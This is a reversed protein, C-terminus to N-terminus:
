WNAEVYKLAEEHDLARSTNGLRVYFAKGRDSKMFVPEPSRDVDVVCVSKEGVDEFRVRFYPATTMGMGTAILSTLLQEFRDRSRGTLSLDRDLGYISGDDEVGILLTGGQSNMFANVTKLSSQRLGKNQENRIADWQLTSKFELVFSEGQGILDTIPRRHTEEPQSILSDMFENLKRAMIERRAALFDPFREVEWLEPQMPVFQAPLAGPHREEIEALYRAPERDSIQQNTAATLFARNAIENVAQRHTYNDADWGNRYLHAQPFIHHSQIGYRAGRTQALPLGNFWDVAGQAKALIFIAKYLPHQVGRGDFDSGKVEIRGRQEVINSRLADWPETERVVLQVDAELRQDTQATYRAWMLAAYLWNTAHRISKEDTFRGENISLHTVLPILANSTNLDNTSHIFAKQPLIILLYDLIKVLRDWGAELEGRPRSHIADFLARNTVAATLARTMFTLSFDFGHGACEEAKSKLARRAMPWKGTVHTLALEADTLKTGQSNIRDFINISEDLDAHSPVIQEPLDIERINRIRNLNNNLREALVMVSDGGDGTKDQAIEFINVPVGTDFCATVRQWFPDGDMRSSQYYQFELDNLNVHLNRPDNEIEDETYFRPIEGSLLMHLTTLRQQGDLLVQVTGVKEPLAEINKLEPPKDTKWLLIGGVPYGRALSVMLQKAQELTWVYERQFEPLVLDSKRISDLLESIKM